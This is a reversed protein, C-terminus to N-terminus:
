TENIAHGLSRVADELVLIRGTKEVPVSLSQMLGNASFELLEAASKGEYEECFAESAAIVHPCAWAKFRLKRIREGSVAASLVIRLGQEELRVEAGDSVHGAHRPDGFLKRVAPSYPDASM